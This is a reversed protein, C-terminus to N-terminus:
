RPVVSGAEARLAALVSGAATDLAGRPRPSFEGRELMRPVAREPAMSTLLPLGVSSAVQDPMLGGPAPGRVVLRVKGTRQALRDLVCKAAVAARVEAPVVLVVLDAREAVASAAAGLQRPLDCVVVNGARRGADVVAAVAPGTPGDGTRDCSIYSLKVAGHRRQPLAAHLAPVSVRGAEVCLTSWRPAEDRETGLVMDVGGGLPDCDVLLAGGTRAARLGVSVALVSAGAGGRGGIVGLVCGGEAGPGEAVEALEALLGAEGDPLSVVREVGAAFARRWTDERPEGKCVLLVGQRRPSSPENEGVADEDLLVLPAAMWHRRASVLDPARETDCGAVTALRLIEDLVVEDSAVVLPRKRTM